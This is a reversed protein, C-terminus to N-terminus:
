SVQHTGPCAYVTTYLLFNRAGATTRAGFRGAGGWRIEIGVLTDRAGM